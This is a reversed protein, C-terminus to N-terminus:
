RNRPKGDEKRKDPQRDEFSYYILYRGDDKKIETKTMSESNRM